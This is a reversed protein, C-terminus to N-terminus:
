KGVFVRLLRGGIANAAENVEVVRLWRCGLYFTLAALAIASFVRALALAFGALPLVAVAENVAWAVLAMPVTAASIRLANSTLERGGIGGLKRRMFVGLLLFNVLAVCSTSVALGVHGFRVVLLSNILYNVAVSGLSILMPTRADGFAYFAPSL